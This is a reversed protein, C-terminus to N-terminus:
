LEEMKPNEGSDEEQKGDETTIQEGSELNFKLQAVYGM